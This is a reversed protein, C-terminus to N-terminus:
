TIGETTLRKGTRRGKRRQAEGIADPSTALARTEQHDLASLLRKPAVFRWADTLLAAFQDPDVSAARILVFPHDSYHPTTRFTAPNQAILADREFFGSKLAVTEGDDHLRAFLKGGKIFFAPTGYSPLALALTRVQGFTIVTVEQATARGARM